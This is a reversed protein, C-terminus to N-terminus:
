APKEPLIILKNILFSLIVWFITLIVGFWKQYFSVYYDRVLYFKKNLPSNKIIFTKLVILSKKNSFISYQSATILIM